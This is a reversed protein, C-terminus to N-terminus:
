LADDVELAVRKKRCRNTACARAGASIKASQSSSDLAACAHKIASGGNDISPSKACQGL